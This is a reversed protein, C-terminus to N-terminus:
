AYIGPANIITPSVPAIGAEYHALVRAASLVTNYVVAEDGAGNCPDVPGFLTLPDSGDALTHPTYSGSVDVGNIYIHASAGNKTGVVHYWLGATLSTTSTMFTTEPSAARKLTVKNTSNVTMAYSASGKSLLRRFIGSGSTMKFWCELSWPGDGLDLAASDPVSVSGSASFLVADNGDATAGEYSYTPTGAYTGTHGNGSSDAATTGSSEDLRYWAVPSDALVAASWSGPSAFPTPSIITIEEVSLLPPDLSQGSYENIAASAADPGGGYSTERVYLQIGKTTVPVSLPVDFIWEEDWYTERLCGANVASSAHQFSTPSVRTVTEELNWTVGDSDLSLVDFDVLGGMWQYCPGCTIIVREVEKDAAFRVTATDPLGASSFAIGASQDSGEYVGMFNDDAVAAASDSGIYSSQKTASVSVNPSPGWDRVSYVWANVGAPLRVYTPTELVPVTIRGSTQSYDQENGFSDVVTLDDTTGDITLTVTSDPMSSACALAMVSGAGADGYVNGIFMKNAPVCGFDVPHHFAKGFLEQAFVCWLTGWPNMSKDGGYGMFLFSSYSWFGHSWDYWAPNREMPIGYQDWLLLKLLPVRSRRPMYISYVSTISHTAETQWMTMDELGYEALMSLFAEINGRGQNIDGNVCTNYDHFALEDCYDGGGADLFVRWAALDSIDVPCPGIAVADPHGEHVAAQFLMMGRAVLDGLRSLPFENAPGEFHTIGLPYLAAVTQVIGDYRSRGIAVPSANTGLGGEAPSAHVYNSAANITVLATTATDSLNDYVEVPTSADPYYITVKKGSLSGDECGMFVLDGDISPTKVTFILWSNSFSGQQVINVWDTSRQPFALFQYRQRVPDLYDTNSPDLWWPNAANQMFSSNAAITDGFGTTPSATGGAILSLRGMGIGLCARTIMEVPSDFNYNGVGTSAAVDSDGTGSPVFAGYYGGVSAPLTAFNDHPRIVSFNTVGYSTGFVADNIPGTLYLRYWGPDWSSGLNLSTGSVAGSAAVTGYYDRVQYSTPTAQSLTITVTDGAYYIGNRATQSCIAFHSPAPSLPFATPM